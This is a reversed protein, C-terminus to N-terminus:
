KSVQRQLRLLLQSCKEEMPDSGMAAGQWEALRSAVPRKIRRVSPDLMLLGGCTSYLPVGRTPYARGRMSGYTCIERM